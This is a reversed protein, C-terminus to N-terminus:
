RASCQTRAKAIFEVRSDLLRKALVQHKGAFPNRLVCVITIIEAHQAISWDRKGNLPVIGLNGSIGAPDANGIDM